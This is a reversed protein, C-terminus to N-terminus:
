KSGKVKSQLRQIKEDIKAVQDLMGKPSASKSKYIRSREEQLAAIQKGIDQSVNNKRM